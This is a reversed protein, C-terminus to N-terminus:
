VFSVCSFVGDCVWIRILTLGVWSLFCNRIGIRILSTTINQDVPTADLIGYICALIYLLNIQTYKGYNTTVIVVQRHSDISSCYARFRFRIKIPCTEM